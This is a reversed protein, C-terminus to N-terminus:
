IQLELQERYIEELVRRVQGAKEFTSHECMARSITQGSLSECVEQLPKYHAKQASLAPVDFDCLALLYILLKVELADFFFPSATEQFLGNLQEMFLLALSYFSRPNETNALIVRITNMSRVAMSFLEADQTFPSFDALVVGDSLRTFGQTEVCEARVLLYLRSLSLLRSNLKRAGPAFLYVMGEATFLEISRGSEGANKISTILGTLERQM